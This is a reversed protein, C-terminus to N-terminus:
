SAKRGNKRPPKRSVPPLVPAPPLNPFAPYVLQDGCAERVDDVTERVFWVRRDKTRVVTVGSATRYVDAINEPVLDLVRGSRLETLTM